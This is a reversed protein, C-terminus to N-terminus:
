EAAQPAPKHSKMGAAVAAAKAIRALEYRDGPWFPNDRLVASDSKNWDDETLYEYFSVEIGSPKHRVLREPLDVDFDEIKIPSM